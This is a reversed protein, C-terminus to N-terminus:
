GFLDGMDMDEEEEAPEPAAAPKAAEKVPAKATEAAPAPASAAGGGVSGYFDSVNRGQLTKAFASVLGASANINAAQLVAKLSDANVEAGQGALVFAAYSVALQEKEAPPLQDLAVSAM